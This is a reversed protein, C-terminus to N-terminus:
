KISFFRDKESLFGSEKVGHSLVAALQGAPTRENIPAVTQQHDTLVAVWGGTDLTQGGDVNDEGEYSSVKFSMSLASSDNSFDASIVSNHSSVSLGDLLDNTTAFDIADDVVASVGAIDGVTALEKQNSFAQTSRETDVVNLDKPVVEVVITAEDLDGGPTDLIQLDSVAIECTAFGRPSDPGQTYETVFGSWNGENVAAFYGIARDAWQEFGSVCGEEVMMAIDKKSDAWGPPSTVEARQVQSEVSTTEAAPDDSSDDSSCSTLVFAASLAAAGAVVRRSMPTFIM